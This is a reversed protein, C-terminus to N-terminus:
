SGSGPPTALFNKFLLEVRRNSQRGEQTDNSATPDDEGASATVVQGPIVGQALLYNVTADVRESALSVNVAEDGQADTHGTVVVYVTPTSLLISVALDLSPASGAIIDSAGSDFSVAHPMVVDGSRISTAADPHWTLQNTIEVGDVPYNEEAVKLVQRAMEWNPASGTLLLTGDQEVLLTRRAPPTDPVPGRGGPWDDADVQGAAQDSQPVTLGQDEAQGDDSSEPPAAESGVTDAEPVSAATAATDAESRDPSLRGLLFAGGLLAVLLLASLIGALYM